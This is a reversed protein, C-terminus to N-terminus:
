HDSCTDYYFDSDQIAINKYEFGRTVVKLVWPYEQNPKKM